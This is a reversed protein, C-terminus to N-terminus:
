FILGTSRMLPLAIGEGIIVLVLTVYLIGTASQNSRRQVCDYAMTTFVAPVILGVAYRATVMAVDWVHTLGHTSAGPQHLFPWLGLTSSLLLRAALLIGLMLVLRRFPAQTMEGGATLYAHGLLMTMLFGGLLGSGITLTAAAGLAATTPIPLPRESYNLNVPLSMAVWAAAVAVVFGAAAAIRQSKRYAKQVLLLQLAFPIAPALTTLAGRDAPHGGAIPTVAAIVGLLGLAILGGLRLWRLTVSFPDSVAQSLGIGAVLMLLVVPLM